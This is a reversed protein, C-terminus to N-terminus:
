LITAFVILVVIVLGSAFKGLTGFTRGWFTAQGVSLNEKWARGGSWEGYMAGLAAGLGGFLIAALIPGVLPIPIGIAAGAIAGCVSGVISYLTAKRSAGARQAGLAGAAFEIVEGILALAFCALVVGYGISARSDEPGLWAYVAVLLVCIWNGPLAILNLLWSITCVLILGLVLLVIGTSEMWQQEAAADAQALISILDPMIERM